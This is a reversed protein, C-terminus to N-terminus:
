IQLNKFKKLLISKCLNCVEWRFIYVISMILNFLSWNSALTLINVSITRIQKFINMQQIYYGVINYRGLTPCVGGHLGGPCVGRFFGWSTLYSLFGRVFGLKLFDIQNIEILWDILTYLWGYIYVIHTHTYIHVINYMYTHIYTHIYAHMCAYMCVYVYANM